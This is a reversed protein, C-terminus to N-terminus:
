ETPHLRIAIKLTFFDNEKISIKFVLSKDHLVFKFMWVHTTSTHWELFAKQSFRKFSFLLPIPPSECRWFFITMSTSFYNKRQAVNKSSLFILVYYRIVHRHNNGDFRAANVKRCDDNLDHCKTKAPHKQCLKNCLLCYREKRSWTLLLFTAM